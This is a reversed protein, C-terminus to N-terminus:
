SFATAKKTNTDVIHRNKDLSAYDLGNKCIFKCIELFLQLKAACFTVAPLSLTFFRHYLLFILM